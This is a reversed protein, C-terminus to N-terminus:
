AVVDIMGGAKWVYCDAGSQKAIKYFLFHMKLCFARKHWLGSFTIFFRVSSSNRSEM